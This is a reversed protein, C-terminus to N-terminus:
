ISGAKAIERLWKESDRWGSKLTMYKVVPNGRLMGAALFAVKLSYFDRASVEGTAWKVTLIYVRQM